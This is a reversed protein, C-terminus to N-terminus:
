DEQTLVMVLGVELLAHHHVHTRSNAGQDDVGAVSHPALLDLDAAGAVVGLAHV